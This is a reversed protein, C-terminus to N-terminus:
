IKDVDKWYTKPDLKKLIQKGELDSRWWENNDRFREAWEEIYYDKGIFGRAKVYDFFNKLKDGKLGYKKGIEKIEKDNYEWAKLEKKDRTHGM